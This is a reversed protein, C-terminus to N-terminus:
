EGKAADLAARAQEREMTFALVKRAEPSELAALCDRLAEVLADRQATFCGSCLTAATCEVTNSDIWWHKTDTGQTAM